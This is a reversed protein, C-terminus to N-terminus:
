PRQQLARRRPACAFSQGLGPSPLAALAIAAASARLTAWMQADHPPASPQPPLPSREGDAIPKADLQGSTVTGLAAEQAAVISASGGSTSQTSQTVSKSAAHAARM